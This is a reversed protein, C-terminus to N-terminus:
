VVGRKRGFIDGEGKNGEGWKQQFGSNYTATATRQPGSGTVTYSDASDTCCSPQLRARVRAEMTGPQDDRLKVEPM